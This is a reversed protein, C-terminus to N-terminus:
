CAYPYLHIIVVYREISFFSTSLLVTTRSQPHVMRWLVIPVLLAYLIAFVISPALDLADPAGGVPAPFVRM